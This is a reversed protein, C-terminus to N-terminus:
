IFTFNGKFQMTGIRLTVNASCNSFFGFALGSSVSGRLVSQGSLNEPGCGGPSAESVQRCLDQDEGNTKESSFFQCQGAERRRM